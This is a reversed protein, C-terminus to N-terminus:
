LEIIGVGLPPLRLKGTLAEGSLLERGCVAPDNIEMEEGRHNLLFLYRRGEASRATVELGEPIEGVLLRPV